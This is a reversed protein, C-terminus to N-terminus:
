GGTQRDRFQADPTVHAWGAWFTAKLPCSLSYVDVVVSLCSSHTVFDLRLHRMSKVLCIHGDFKPLPMLPGSPDQREPLCFPQVLRKPPTCRCAKVMWVSEGAVNVHVAHCSQPSSPRWAGRNVFLFPPVPEFHPIALIDEPM